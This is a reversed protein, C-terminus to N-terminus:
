PQFQKLFIVIKLNYNKPKINQASKSFESSKQMMQKKVHQNGFM